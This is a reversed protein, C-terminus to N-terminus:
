DEYSQNSAAVIAGVGSFLSGLGQGIGAALAGYGNDPAVAGVVPKPPPPQYAPMPRQLSKVILLVGVAVAGYILADKV